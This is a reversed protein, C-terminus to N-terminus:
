RILGDKPSTRCLTFMGADIESKFCYTIGWEGIRERVMMVVGPEGFVFWSWRDTLSEEIWEINNKHNSSHVNITYIPVITYGHEMPPKGNSIFSFDIFRLDPAALPIRVGMKLTSVQPEAMSSHGCM